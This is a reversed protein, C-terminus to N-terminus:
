TADSAMIVSVPLPAHHCSAMLSLQQDKVVSLHVKDGDKLCATSKLQEIVPILVKNAWQEFSLIGGDGQLVIDAMYDVVRMQIELNLSAGMVSAFKASMIKSLTLKFQSQDFPKFDIVRDTLHHIDRITLPVPSSETFQGINQSSEETLDSADGDDRIEDDDDDDDNNSDNNGHKSSSSGPCLNLDLSLSHGVIRPRNRRKEHPDYEAQRKRTNPGVSLELHWRLPMMEKEAQESGVILVFIINGFGGVERNYSDVFQGTMIAKKITAKVIANAQDIGNLVIVRRPNTKVSEVLLDLQTIGCDSINQEQRTSDTKPGLNFTAPRESFLQISLAYAMKRKGIDDPGNFLLWIASKYLGYMKGSGSKVGQVASAISMAAEPQWNVEQLLGESLKIQSAADSNPGSYLKTSSNPTLGLSLDTHVTPESHSPHYGISSNLGLSIPM